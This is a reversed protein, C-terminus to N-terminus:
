SRDQQEEGDARQDEENKVYEATIAEQKKEPLKYNLTLAVRNNMDLIAKDSYGLMQKSLFIQMTISGEMATKFMMQRLSTKGKEHGREILENYIKTKFLTDPHCGIINAIEKYNCQVIALQEIKKLDEESLKLKRGM